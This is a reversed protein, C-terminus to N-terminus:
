RRKGVGRLDLTEASINQLRSISFDNARSFGAALERCEAPAIIIFKGIVLKGAIAPVYTTFYVEDLASWEGGSSRFRARVLTPTSITIPGSYTSGAIAGGIARPDSGDLTYHISGGAAASLTLQYGTAVLGGRQSFIPADM